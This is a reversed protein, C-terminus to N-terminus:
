FLRQLRNKGEGFVEGMRTLARRESRAQRARARERERERQERVVQQRELGAQRRELGTQQRQRTREMRTLAEIDRRRIQRETERQQREINEFSAPNFTYEQAYEAIDGFRAQERKLQTGVNLKARAKDIVTNAVDEINTTDLPQIRPSLKVDVEESLRTLANSNNARLIRKSWGNLITNADAPRDLSLKKIGIIVKLLVSIKSFNLGAGKPLLVIINRTAMGDGRSLQVMTQIIEEFQNFFDLLQEKNLSLGKKLFLTYLDSLEGQSIKEFDGDFFRNYLNSLIAQAKSAIEDSEGLVPEERMPTLNVGTEQAQQLADLQGKREQLIKNYYDQVQQTRLLGSGSLKCNDGYFTNGNTNFPTNFSGAPQFKPYRNYWGGDLLVQERNKNNNMRAIQRQYENSYLPNAVGTMINNQKELGNSFYGGRQGARVEEWNSPFTFATEAM